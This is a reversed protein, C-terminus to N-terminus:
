LHFGAATPVYDIPAGSYTQAPDGITMGDYASAGVKVIDGAIGAAVGFKDPGQVANIASQTQALIANSNLSFQNARAEQEQDIRGLGRATKSRQEAIAENVSIGSVGSTAASALATAEDARGRLTLEFGEQLAMRNDQVYKEQQAAMKNNQALQANRRNIAQIRQQEKAQAISMAASIAATVAMTASAPDCM